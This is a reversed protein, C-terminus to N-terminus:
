NKKTEYIANNYGEGTITTSKKNRDTVDIHHMHVEYVLLKLIM